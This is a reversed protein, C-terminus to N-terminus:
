MGGESPVGSLGATDSDTDTVPTLSMMHQGAAALGSFAILV